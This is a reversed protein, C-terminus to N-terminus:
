SAMLLERPSSLIPCFLAPCLLFGDAPIMESSVCVYGGAEEEEGGAAVATEGQLM